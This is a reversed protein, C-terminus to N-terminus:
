EEYRKLVPKVENIFFPEVPVDKGQLLTCHLAGYLTHALDICVDKFTSLVIYHQLVIYHEM